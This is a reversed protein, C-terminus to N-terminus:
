TGCLLLMLSARHNANGMNATPKKPSAAYPKRMCRNTVLLGPRISSAVSITLGNKISLIFGSAVTAGIVRVDVTISGSM